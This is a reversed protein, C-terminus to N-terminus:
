GARRDLSRASTGLPLMREFLEGPSMGAQRAAKPVLSHDTLGPITNVELVFPGRYLDLRLDVRVLGTTGLASSARLATQTVEQSASSELGLDFVYQTANDEYKARYDFFARQTEVRIPPLAVGDLLAVTIEPGLIEAELIGYPGFHFCRALASPLSKPSDVVSVGLSSGQADPKVVFPYGLRSAQRDIRAADDTEHIVVHPPTPVGAHIFRLKAASKSFALRSPAATSGTYPVGLEDLLSQVQGDEGFEGHLAIFAADIGWWDCSELKTEAPDVAYCAHGRATLADVVTRGSGLSIEREPSSGGCLVVIQAPSATQECHDM